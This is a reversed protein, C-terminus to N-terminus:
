VAKKFRRQLRVVGWTRSRVNNKKAFTVIAAWKQDASLHVFLVYRNGLSALKEVTGNQWRNLSMAPIDENTANATPQDEADVLWKRIPPAADPKEDFGGFYITKSDSSWAFSGFASGLDASIKGSDDLVFGNGPLPKGSGPVFYAAQKGDPSWSLHAVPECGIITTFLATLAISITLYRFRSM